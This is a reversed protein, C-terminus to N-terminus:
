RVEIKTWDSEIFEIKTHFISFLVIETAHMKDIGAIFIYTHHSSRMNLNLKMNENTICQEILDVIKEWILDTAWSM